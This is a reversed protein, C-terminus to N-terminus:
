SNSEKSYKKEVSEVVAVSNTEPDSRWIGHRELEGRYGVFDPPAISFKLERTEEDEEVHCACLHHDLLATQQDYSLSQWEDSAIEIIFKYETDGLVSLIGPAKRSKGLVPKGGSKSAKERFLVAIEKDISALMPHFKSILDKVREQTEQNAVWMEM